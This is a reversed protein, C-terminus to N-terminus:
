KKTEKSPLDYYGNLLKNWLKQYVGEKKLIALGQNFIKLLKPSEKLKIPFLLSGPIQALAKPHTEILQRVNPNFSKRILAYTVVPDLIMVDIRGNLLKLLNQKDDTVVEAELKKSKVAAWFEKTYTYGRTIGIRYKKLDDLTNWDGMPKSKLYFFVFDINLVPESCFFGKKNKESCNWYSAAQYRGSMAERKSREWPLYVFKIGYDVRKFAEAIVHNAFGGSNSDESTFPPYEGSAIRITTKATLSPLCLINIILVILGRM